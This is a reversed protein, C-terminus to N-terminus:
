GGSGLGSIGIVSGPEMDSVADALEDIVKDIVRRRPRM